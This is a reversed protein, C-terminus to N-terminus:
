APLTDSRERGLPSSSRGSARWSLWLLLAAPVCLAIDRALTAVTAPSGGAGFCGCDIKLGRLLASAVAGTFTLMLGTVILAAEFPFLNLLLVAGLGTELGLLGVTFWPVLAAPLVRYNAVDEAFAQPAPWKAAAAYLLLGGLFLRLALQLWSLPRLSRM